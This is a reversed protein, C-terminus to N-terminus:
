WAQFIGPSAYDNWSFYVCASRQLPKGNCREAWARSQRAQYLLFLTRLWPGAVPLPVSNPGHWSVPLHLIHKFGHDLVLRCLLRLRKSRPHRPPLLRHRQRFPDPPRLIHRIQLISKGAVPHIKVLGDLLARRPRYSISGKHSVTFCFVSDFM